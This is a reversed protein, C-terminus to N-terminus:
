VEIRVQIISKSITGTIDSPRKYKQEVFVLEIKKGVKYADDNGLRPWTTSGENNDIVFEPYDNHGSVYVKSIIGTVLHKKIKGTKINDFWENSGFLIQDEIKYGSLSNVDLSAEQGLKIRRIDNSINYIEILKTM